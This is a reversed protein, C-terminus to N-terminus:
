ISGVFSKNTAMPSASNHEKAFVTYSSNVTYGTAIPDYFHEGKFTQLPLCRTTHLRPLKFVPIQNRQFYLIAHGHNAQSYPHQPM